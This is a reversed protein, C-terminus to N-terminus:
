SILLLISCSLIIFDNAYLITELINYKTYYINPGAKMVNPSEASVEHFYVIINKVQDRVWITGIWKMDTAVLITM